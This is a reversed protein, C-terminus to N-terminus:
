YKRNAFGFKKPVHFEVSFGNIVDGVRFTYLTYNDMRMVRKEPWFKMPYLIINLLKVLFPAHYKPHNYYLIVVWVKHKYVKSVQDKWPINPNVRIPYACEHNWRKELKANHGSALASRLSLMGKIINTSPSSWNTNSKPRAKEKEQAALWLPYMKSNSRPRKMHLYIDEM